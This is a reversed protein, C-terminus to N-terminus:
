FRITGDPLVEALDTVFRGQAPDFRVILHVVFSGTAGTFRGTGGDFQIVTFTEIGDGEMLFDLRHTEGGTVVGLIRDGDEAILDLEGTAAVVPDCAGTFPNSQFQYPYRDQGLVPAFPGGAPGDPEFEAADPDPNAAGIDWAASMELALRGISVFTAEGSIEGGAMAPAECALEQDRTLAWVLAIEPDTMEFSRTQPGDTGSVDCGTAAVVFAALPVLTPLTPKM